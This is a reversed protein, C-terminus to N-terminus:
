SLHISVSVVLSPVLYQFNQSAGIIDIQHIGGLEM